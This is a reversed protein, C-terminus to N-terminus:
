DEELNCNILFHCNKQCSLITQRIRNAKDSYWAKEFSTNKINGIDAYNFCLFMDGTSSLNISKDFNCPGSKVFKNPNKFYNRYAELQFFKDPVKSGNKKLEVIEDFVKDVLEMDQPWLHKYEKKFWNHDPKTNNPQMVVNFKISLIDPHKDVFKILNPIDQLNLACVVAQAAIRFEMKDIEKEDMYEVLNEISQMLKDFSSQKGRIYDHLEPTSGDLSFNISGLGSDIMKKAVSKTIMWGNSALNTEFGLDTAYKILEFLNKRLLPEGGAFNILFDPEVTKRLGRIFKKIDETSNKEASPPIFIDDKWKFCMKCQFFCEENVSLNCFEPKVREPTKIQVIKPKNNYSLKAKKKALGTNIAFDRLEKIIYRQIM